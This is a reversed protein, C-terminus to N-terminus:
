QSKSVRSYFERPTSCSQVKLRVRAPKTILSRSSPGIKTFPWSLKTMSQWERRRWDTGKWNLWLNTWWIRTKSEWRHSKRRFKRRKSNALQCNTSGRPCCLWRPHDMLARLRVVRTIIHEKYWWTTRQHSQPWSMKCAIAYLSSPGYFLVNM